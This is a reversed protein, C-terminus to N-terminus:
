HGAYRIADGGRQLAQRTDIVRRETGYVIAAGVGGCVGGSAVHKDYVDKRSFERECGQCRFGEGFHVTVVHRNISDRLM